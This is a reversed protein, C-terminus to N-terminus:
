VNDELIDLVEKMSAELEHQNDNKIILLDDKIKPDDLNTPINFNCEALYENWHWRQM